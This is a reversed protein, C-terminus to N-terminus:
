QRPRIEILICDSYQRFFIVKCSHTSSMIIIIDIIFAFFGIIVFATFSYHSPVLVNSKHSQQQSVYFHNVELLISSIILFFQFNLDANSQSSNDQPQSLLFARFPCCDNIHWALSNGFCDMLKM